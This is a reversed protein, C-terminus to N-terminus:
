SFLIFFQNNQNVNMEIFYPLQYYILNVRKSKSGQGKFHEYSFGFDLYTSENVPANTCAMTFGLLYKLIISSPLM